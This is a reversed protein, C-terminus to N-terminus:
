RKPPEISVETYELEGAMVGLNVIRPLRLTDWLETPILVIGSELIAPTVSADFFTTVWDPSVKAAVGTYFFGPAAEVPSGGSTPSIEFAQISESM